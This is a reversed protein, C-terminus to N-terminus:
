LRKMFFLKLTYVLTQCLGSLSLWPQTASSRFGFDIFAVHNVPWSATCNLKCEKLVIDAREAKLDESYIVGIVDKVYNLVLLNPHRGTNFIENINYFGLLKLFWCWWYLGRLCHLNTYPHDSIWHPSCVFKCVTRLRSIM